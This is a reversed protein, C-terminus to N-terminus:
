PRDMTSHDDIIRQASTIEPDLVKTTTKISIQSIRFTRFIPNNDPGTSVFCIKDGAVNIIRCRLTSSPIDSETGCNTVVYGTVGEVQLTVASKVLYNDSGVIEEHEM